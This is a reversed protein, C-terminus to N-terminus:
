FMPASSRCHTGACISNCSFPISVELVLFQVAPAALQPDMIQATVSDTLLWLDVSQAQDDDDEKDEQQQKRYLLEAMQQYRYVAAHVASTADRTVTGEACNQQQQKSGLLFKAAISIYKHM